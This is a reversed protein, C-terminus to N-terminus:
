LEYCDTNSKRIINNGSGWLIFQSLVLGGQLLVAKGKTKIDCAGIQLLTV